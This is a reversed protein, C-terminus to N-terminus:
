TTTTTTTTSTTPIRWRKAISTISGAVRQARSVIFPLSYTSCYESQNQSLQELVYKYYILRSVQERPVPKQTMYTLNFWANKGYQALAGEVSCLTDELNGCDTCQTLYFPIM